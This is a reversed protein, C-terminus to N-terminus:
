SKLYNLITKIIYEMQEEDLETHMPLSLVQESLQEAVPLSGKGKGDVLYAKQLHLPLPYYVMSPIGKDKLHQKMKERDISPGLKLTYQHFVHSSFNEREPVDIKPHNSLKEDYYRAATQRADIYNDLYKLKVDLIAAQLTDMRSNVGIYEHYYKKFSGHNVIGRLEKALEDNNTFVAGADGFAGLNKSPFFSMCGMDGITGAKMTKGNESKHEAGIAQCADEVVSLNHERAINMIRDMDSCQGFLHVPIIVKTRESLAEEIKEPDINFTDPDVDVLVPKLDLLAIVEATAIFTFTSTIVEDGPKLDLSMLAVQLADTGNGCPIVHKVDLYEELNRAFSKVHPGNIFATSDIVEQMAQDIEPKIKEYQGKLDVMRIERM